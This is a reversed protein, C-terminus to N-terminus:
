RSYRRPLALERVALALRSPQSDEERNALVGGVLWAGGALMLAIFQFTWVSASAPQAITDPLHVLLVFSGMMLGLMRAALRALMGLVLALGAALHGAGTLHAWFHRQPLWEPVMSATIDAYVFHCLGFVIACSGYGIRLSAIATRGNMGSLAFVAMWGAIALSSAEAFGLWAGLVAPAAMVVPAKLFLVWLLFIIGSAAAGHARWRPTVAAVGAALILGAVLYTLPEGLPGWDPVPQWQRAYGGFALGTLGFGIAGLAYFLIDPLLTRKDM